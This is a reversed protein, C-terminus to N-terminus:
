EGDYNTLDLGQPLPQAFPTYRVPCETLEQCSIATSLAQLSHVDGGSAALHLATNGRRDRMDVRAGAVVLRRVIRPQGCLVAVHLPTQLLNNQFDLISPHPVASILGAVFEENGQMIGLHLQTDGDEDPMFFFEWSGESPGKINGSGGKTTTTTGANGSGEESLNLGSLSESVSVDVGSDLRSYNTTCSSMSASPKHSIAASSSLTSHASSTLDSTSMIVSQSMSLDSETTCPGSIFGSDQTGFEGFKDKGGVVEGGGVRVDTEQSM